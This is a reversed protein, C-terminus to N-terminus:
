FKFIYSISPLIPSLSVKRPTVNLYYQDINGEVQYHYYYPNKQNYVNYISLNITSQQNKTEKINYNVSLDLRHYSPMRYGNISTYHNGISKQVIYRGQPLTMANGTAYIFVGSINWKSNFQHNLTISLDHTRDYKAPFPKSNNLAKFVRDSKSLTYSIWGTIFGANKKIQFEIGYAQGKGTLLNEKLKQNTFNQLVGNTFEIQNGLLKLYTEVSIEIKNKKYDRYYGISAIKANQPKIFDTSPLWLDTPLSVSGVSALHIFQHSISFSGKISSQHNIKSIFSFFPDITYYPKVTERKKYTNKISDTNNTSFSIYPGLHRYNTTRIGLTIKTHEKLKFLASSYISLEDSNFQNSSDYNVNGAHVNVKNPQLFHQIYELGYNIDIKPRNKIKGKIKVGYDEILSKLKLNYQNYNAGLQFNYRSYVFATEISHNPNFYHRFKLSGTHNKWYMSNKIDYKKDHLNYKDNSIFWTTEMHNKDSLKLTFKGIGDYFLYKASNFLNQSGGTFAKLITQAIGLYTRRGSILLSGKNNMIPLNITLDSALLGISGNIKSNMESGISLDIVSSIKGGYKPPLGGKFVKIDSLADSNFVPFFGLMHSPNYVSVGDILILNQGAGGGRVHLGVSGEGGAQIGPLQKISGMVDPEGMFGPIKKIEHNNLKTMGAQNNLNSNNNTSIRIENLQTINPSLYINITTDNKITINLTDTRYGIFTTILCCKGNKTTINFKGNSNTTIIKNENKIYINTGKLSNKNISDHIIGTLTIQKNTQGDCILWTFAFYLFVLICKKNM